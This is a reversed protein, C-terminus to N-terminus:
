KVQAPALASLMDLFVLQAKDPLYIIASYNISCTGSLYHINNSQNINEPQARLEVVYNIKM